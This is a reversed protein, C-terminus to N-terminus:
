KLLINYYYIPISSWGHCLSGANNFDSAGIETEWVTGTEIMKEYTQRIEGLIASSYKEKDCKLLADYKFCKM